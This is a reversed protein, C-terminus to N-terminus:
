EKVIKNSYVGENTKVKVMYIGSSLSNLNVDKVDGKNVNFNNNYVLSGISNYIEVTANTTKAFSVSMSNAVPNPYISINGTINTEHVSVPNCPIDSLTGTLYMMSNQEPADADGRIHLGPEFSYMYILHFNSNLTKSMAPFVCEVQDHDLGGTIETFPGWNNDSTCFKRGWIHSFFQNGSSLMDERFSKYVLYMDGNTQDITLQPTSSCSTYYLPIQANVDTLQDFLVGSNDADVVWAVLKGAADLNTPDLATAGVFTPEGENWMAIGDVLPFWSTSADTTDSNLVRMVGFAVHANGNADLSVAHTGDCVYPTDLALTHAEQFNFYPHQFIITKNWTTGGDTSKMLSLDSWNDGVVFALTNGVPEAWSYVDGGYGETYGAVSDLGAPIQAQIDWTAGADTSRYYVLPNVQGFYNVSQDAALVHITDGKTCIRPWTPNIAAPYPILSQIWAGTGKTTRKNMVLQTGNHAVVVEGNTGLHSYSPWGTRIPEIRGTPTPGWSTGDFYNYGTGRDPFTTPQQGFTFTIGITNDPYLYCRHDSSSNSMLDYWTNGVEYDLSLAKVTPTYYPAQEVNSNYEKQIRYPKKVSVNKLNSSVPIRNQAMLGFSVAVSM